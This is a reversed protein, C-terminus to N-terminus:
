PRRNSSRIGTGGGSHASSPADGSSGDSRASVFEVFRGAAQPSSLLHVHVYSALTNERRYGGVPVARGRADRVTFAEGPHAGEAVESYHFEHGRLREGKRGILGDETLEVERYGLSPRGKRMRTAFPFVGAMGFFRGEFDYIGRSLYMLGGCEAYLPRGALAWQRVSERMSANDSLARAYLEPYGGGIYLADADGPVSADSLPSFPVVEAGHERLADLNDEYYFCFARDRAVGLKIRRMPGSAPRVLNGGVPGGGVPGGLAMMGELDIHQTVAEALREIHQGSLPDEEAVVLGLHRHPLELSADRPLYGFVRVERPVSGRLREFHERSAVRNFVVGAVGAGEQRVDRGYGAFGKVLAGASEAMGYADVVLVVPLGLLSALAFTSAQGDYLGMVGEVVAADADVSHRKMLDAVVHEGCMWLDLNRSPRGTVLGHLGADIFDPGAKFPQVRLGKRRLAALVGLTVTTKGSGSHTGAIVIGKAM